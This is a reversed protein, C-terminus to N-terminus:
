SFIQVLNQIEIITIMVIGLYRFDIIVELAM